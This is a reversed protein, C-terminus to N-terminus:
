VLRTLRLPRLRHAVRRRVSGGRIRARVLGRSVKNANAGGALFDRQPVKEAVAQGELLGQCANVMLSPKADLTARLLM